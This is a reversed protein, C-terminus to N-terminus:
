RKLQQRKKRKKKRLQFPIYDPGTTTSIVSDLIKADGSQLVSIQPSHGGAAGSSIEPQLSKKKEDAISYAAKSSKLGTKEQIMKASYTKGLDSGNFVCKTKHDVYTLGYIVGEKNQRLVVSIREKNLEDIWQQLGAGSKKLLAYDIATRLRKVHPLKLRDNEEFKTELNKLTPKMYFASAKIPASIKKGREDLVYYVLGGGDYIRSGKEGRDALVNYLKLVANLEPLSSYKYQNIVLGLVNSIARKTSSKGYAVKQTSIPTMELVDELNKGEAKILGFQIEIEKRAKESENRGLNHMSIRSGDRRINTSVIHIHPHGTDHHQYIVYPQEVFGIREMYTKAIEVLKYSGLIDSPDFNLSVHLTNTTARENLSTFKEFTRLKDSFSLREADKLFNQASLVEAEKERVKNENYHLVRSM